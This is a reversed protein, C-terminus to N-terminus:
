PKAPLLTSNGLLCLLSVGYLVEFFGFGGNNFKTTIIIILLLQWTTVALETLFPLSANGWLHGQAILHM